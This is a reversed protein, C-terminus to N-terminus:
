LGCALPITIQGNAKTGSVTVTASPGGNFHIDVNENSTENLIDVDSNAEPCAAKCRSYSTVTTKLSLGTITGDSTGSVSVCSSTTDWKVDKQNTRSFTRGGATTGSLSANWTMDRSTGSATVVATATWSTITAKNIQFNQSSYNLTLNNPGTSSYTVTVTGTLHVLGYPGTCDNFVYTNKEHVLDQTETVCGSPYLNSGFNDAHFDNAVLDGHAFSAAALSGSSDTGVFTSALTETNAETQAADDGSAATEDASANNHAACAVALPTLATIALLSIHTIRM